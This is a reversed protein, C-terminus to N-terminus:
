IRLLDSILLQPSPFPYLTQLLHKVTMIINLPVKTIMSPLLVQLGCFIKRLWSYRNRWNGKDCLIQAIICQRRSEYNYQSISTVMIKEWRCIKTSFRTSYRYKANKMRTPAVSFSACLVITDFKFNALPGFICPSSM